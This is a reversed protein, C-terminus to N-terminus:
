TRVGDSFSLGIQITGYHGFDAVVQRATGVPVPDGCVGTSVFQGAELVVDRESLHNVLWTLAFRPDDLADAGSGRTVVTGDIVLCVPQCALDDVRWNGPVCPGLVFLNACANDAVLQPAGARAFNLYRSDPLEIGLRLDGVHAMVEQWTYPDKRPLMSTSLQFVFEAEAAQMLNGAMQAIDGQTLVRSALLQGSIPHDIGIHHQGARSTAAIKLGVVPEDARAILADQVQYAEDLDAPRCHVPLVDIRNGRYGADALIRAAQQIRDQTM